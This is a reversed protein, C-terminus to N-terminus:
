PPGADGSRFTFESSRNVIELRSLQTLNSFGPPLETIECDLLTLAELRTLMGVAAPLCSALLDCGTFDMSLLRLRSYTM